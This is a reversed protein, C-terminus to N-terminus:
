GYVRLVNQIAERIEKIREKTNGIDLKAQIARDTEYDLRTLVDLARRYESLQQEDPTIDINELQDLIETITPM